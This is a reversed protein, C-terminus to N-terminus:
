RREEAADLRANLDTLQEETLDHTDFYRMVRADYIDRVQDREDDTLIGWAKVSKILHPDQISDFAVQLPTKEAEKELEEQHEPNYSDWMDQQYPTLEEDNRLKGVIERKIAREDLPVNKRLGPIKSEATELLGSPQRPTNDDLYKAINGVDPPIVRSTVLAAFYKSRGEATGLAEMDKIGTGIFPVHKAISYLGQEVGEANRSIV